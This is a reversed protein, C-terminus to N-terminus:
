PKTARLARLIAPLDDHDQYPLVQVNFERQFRDRDRPDKMLAYHRSTATGFARVNLEFVLDLDLPDNIGYGVLLFTYTQLLHSMTCQYSEDRTALAYEGQTMVVSEEDDATGHIKYLVKRREGIDSLASDSKRWTYPQRGPEATELLQDYNTTVLVDLGLDVLARHVDGPAANAPRFIANLAAQYRRANRLSTKPLDLVALMSELSVHGAKLYARLGDLQASELVAYNQAQEFFREPLENWSPFSGQVDRAMSLGSGFLVALKNKRYAEVLPAPFSFRHMAAPLPHSPMTKFATSGLDIVECPSRPIWTGQAAADKAGHIAWTFDRDPFTQQIQEIAAVAELTGRSSLEGLLSNRLEAVRRRSTFDNMEGQRDQPDSDSSFHREIWVYIMMADANLLCKCWSSSYRRDIERVFTIFVEEGFAPDAELLPRVVPWGIKPNFAMLAHAAAHARLRGPSGEPIPANLISVAADTAGEVAHLILEDLLDGLFRPKLDPRRAYELLFRGLDADWCAALHHLRGPYGHKRHDEDLLARLVDRVRSPEARYARAVVRQSQANVNPAFALAIASWNAWVTVAHEDLWAPDLADILCVYRYGVAAPHYGYPVEVGLWEGSRENALLLYERGVDLVRNKTEEDARQWGPFKRLDERYYLDNRLGGESDVALLSQLRWGADIDGDGFRRLCVQIRKQM